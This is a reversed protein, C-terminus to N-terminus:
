FLIGGVQLGLGGRMPLPAVYEIRALASVAPALGRGGVQRGFVGGLVIGLTSMTASFLLGRKAPPADEDLYFLYVPLSAIAGIAAGTWMWSLQEVSPVFATSLAMAAVLGTNLGIWGGRAMWDNSRSFGVGAESAGLGAASGILAGWVAGSAAFASINPSPRQAVSLVYGGVAGLTSGIAISRVMGRHGWPEDSTLMQLGALAAGEAAGIAVGAALAAPVGRPWEPGNLLYAGLPLAVGLLTPPILLQAPDDLRLEVDAWIGLGVGYAAAAAYLAGREFTSAHRSSAGPAVSSAVASLRAAPPPPEAWAPAPPSAQAHVPAPEAAAALWCCCTWLIWRAM